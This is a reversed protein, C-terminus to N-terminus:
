LHCLEYWKENDLANVLKGKYSEHLYEVFKKTQNLLGNRLPFTSLNVVHATTNAEDDDGNLENSASILVGNFEDVTYVFHLVMEWLFKIQHLPLKATSEKRMLLLQCISKQALESISTLVTGSREMAWLKDSHGEDQGSDDRQEEENEGDAQEDNEKDEELDASEEKEMSHSSDESYNQCLFIHVSVSKQLIKLLSELCMQLCSLFNENTMNRVKSSFSNEQGGAESSQADASTVDANIYELLCTRVVLRVSDALRGAYTELALPVKQVMLLSNLLLAFSEKFSAIDEAKEDSVQPKAEDTDDPNKDVDADPESVWEIALSVFRNAM